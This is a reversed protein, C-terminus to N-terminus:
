KPSKLNTVISARSRNGVDAGTRAGSLLSVSDHDAVPGLTPSPSPRPQGDPPFAAPTAPKIPTTSASDARRDLPNADAAAAPIDTKVVSNVLACCWILCVLELHRHLGPWFRGQYDGLGLVQKGDEHFREITWRRHAFQLQGALGEGDLHWAFYWSPDGEEGPLPREGILWGAAGTEDGVARQVRIRCALRQVPHEDRDIVNVTVWQEPPVANTLEQAPHLPAVQVPHPHTRRRGARGHPKDPVMGDKRKRGPPKTPPIPQAAAAAVEAPLRCGFVKSVQVIYPEQREELGSLFAPSDGYGADATVAAHLVKLARAKDLLGLALTPKTAFTVEQPVRVATCRARDTTWSEPLYLRTGIPWHGRPTAYQATVVVQCNAVKGVEGCYQRKVGVSGKGQKPLGTDDFCLVGHQADTFGQGVMFVVRKAQLAEADWPSDAVFNQLQELTAAPLVEAIREINKRPLDSVLGVLYHTCNEVGRERPFVSRFQEVFTRVVTQDIEGVVIQM